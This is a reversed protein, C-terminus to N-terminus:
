EIGKAKLEEKVRSLYTEDPYGFCQPGGTMSTKHHIDNWTVANEMGTTRSAGVTFILKQDFAKKLLHLVENGEKNDPLYATRTTGAFYQGPKPHNETQLGGPIYYSIEIYGCGPFGPLDAYNHKKWKMTGEPQNGKVVGFVDKCIPCIPGSHQVAKQLCDKCFAHKCRLQEKNTFQSLCILCPDEKRELLINEISANMLYQKKITLPTRSDAKKQYDSHKIAGVNSDTLTMNRIRPSTGVPVPKLHDIPHNIKQMANLVASFEDQGKKPGCVIVEESSMSLLLKDKNKKIVRLADSWQDPDVFKLPIVVGGSEALCSQYLEIFECLAENTRGAEFTVHVQATIKSKNNREICKIEEKYIHSMYWFLNVPLLSSEQAAGGAKTLPNNLKVPLVM